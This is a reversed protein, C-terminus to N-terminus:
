LSVWIGSAFLATGIASGIAPIRFWFKLSLGLYIAAVVPASYFLPVASQLGQFNSIALYFYVIGFFMVGVGHSINFGVWAKWVTTERTIRLADQKMFDLLKEDRPVLKAPRVMDIFTYIVHLFGLILFPLSGAIFLARAM